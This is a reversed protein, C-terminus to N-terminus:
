KKKGGGGLETIQRILALIAVLLKLTDSSQVQPPKDGQHAEESARAYFYAALLGIIAGAIAGRMYMTTKWSNTQVSNKTSM